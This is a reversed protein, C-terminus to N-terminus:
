CNIKCGWAVDVLGAALEEAAFLRRDGGFDRLGVVDGGYGVGHGVEAHEVRERRGVGVRGAGRVVQLHLQVVVRINRTRHEALM